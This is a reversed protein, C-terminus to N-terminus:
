RSYRIDLEATADQWMLQKKDGPRYPPEHNKWDIMKLKQHSVERRHSTVCTSLAHRINHQLQAIVFVLKFTVLISEAKQVTYVSAINTGIEESRQAFNEASVPHMFVCACEM